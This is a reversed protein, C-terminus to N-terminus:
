VRKYRCRVVRMECRGVSQTMLQVLVGHGSFLPWLIRRVGKVFKTATGYNKAHVM